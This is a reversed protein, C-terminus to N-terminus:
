LGADLKLQKVEGNPTVMMITNRDKAKEEKIFYKVVIKYTLQVVPEDIVPNIVLDYSDYSVPNYYRTNSHQLENYRASVRKKAVDISPRSFAQYSSYRNQPVVASQAEAFVKKLTDLRFGILEYSKIKGKLLELCKSRLTEYNKNIDNIYYDVKVLDFIEARAAASILADLASSNKYHITISKQLEFGDPVENFSKSFIKSELNFNYKPVFSIMDTKVESTDIGMTKLSLKFRQIRKAMLQDTVESTEGVQIVNFTAVYHDAKANMLGSLTIIM